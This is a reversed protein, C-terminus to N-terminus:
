KEKKQLAQRRERAEKKQKEANHFVEAVCRPVEVAEGRKVQWLIGNVGCVAVDDEGDGSLLPLTIKVTDKKAAKMAKQLNRELIAQKQGGSLMAEQEGTKKETDAIKTELAELKQLLEEMTLKEEKAM